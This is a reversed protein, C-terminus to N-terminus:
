WIVLREKAGIMGRQRAQQEQGQETKLWAIRAQVEHFRQKEAVLQAYHRQYDDLNKIAATVM